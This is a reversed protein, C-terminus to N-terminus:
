SAAHCRHVTKETVVVHMSVDYDLVPLRPEMQCAFALGIRPSEPPASRLLSDYYRKGYGLRAGTPDFALGPVVFLEVEAPQVHRDLQGRLGAPPEWLGFPAPALEALDHLHFLRLRSGDVYPVIVQKDGVIAARLLNWTLVESGVGVYSCITKAQRYEPLRELTVCIRESLVAKNPQAERRRMAIRRLTTKRAWQQEREATNM